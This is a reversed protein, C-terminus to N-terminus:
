DAKRPGALTQTVDAQAFLVGTPRCVRSLGAPATAEAEGVLLGFEEVGALVVVRVLAVTRHRLIRSLLSGM